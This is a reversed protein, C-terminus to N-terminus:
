NSHTPTNKNECSDLEASGTYFEPWRKRVVEGSTSLALCTDLIVPKQRSERQAERKELEAHLTQYATAALPGLLDMQHTCSQNSGIRERVRKMWGLGIKIGILSKMVRSAQVCVAFPTQDSSAEADRIVFDIDITIRVWIDHVAEGARILGGRHNEDYGCDYTRSDHLHAEIDWLGDDREYGECTIQRLHLKKRSVTDTLPM